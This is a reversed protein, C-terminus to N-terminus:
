YYISIFNVLLVLIFLQAFIFLMLLCFDLCLARCRMAVVVLGLRVALAVFVVAGRCLDRGGIGGVM